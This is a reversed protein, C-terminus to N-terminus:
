KLSEEKEYEELAKIFIEEVHKSPVEGYTDIYFHKFVETPVNDYEELEDISMTIKSDNNDYTKGIIELMNPYVERLRSVVDLGVFVDDLEIRVYSNRDRESMGNTQLIEEYKGKITKREYLSEIPIVIRSMDDTDIVTVSKEQLEEKGFSYKMPTGSYRINEGIDQPGHLHGLAVYDFDKFVYSGIATAFGIEATRDSVSTEANMIFAHGILINKKNKDFNEKMKDCVFEYAAELNKIEESSKNFVARVKEATFWPLTYIDVGECEIPSLDESLVGKIYLGSKKLIESGAALREAGDHNGAVIVMPINMDNCIRTITEDYLKIADPHAISRDFVDGALLVMDISHKEIIKCIQDIFFRQDEQIGRGRFSMGLHWDSTHLVKM